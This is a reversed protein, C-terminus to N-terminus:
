WPQRDRLKQAGALRKGGPARSLPMVDRARKLDVLKSSYEPFAKALDSLCILKDLFRATDIRREASFASFDENTLADAEVNTTRRRWQVDICTWSTRVPWM